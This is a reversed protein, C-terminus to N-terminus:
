SYYNLAAVHRNIGGVPHCRVRLDADGAGCRDASPLTASVTAGIWIASAFGALSFHNM